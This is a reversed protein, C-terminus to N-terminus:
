VIGREALDATAAGQLRLRMAADVVDEPRAHDGVFADVHRSVVEGREDLLLAGGQQLRDGHRRGPRLGRGIARAETFLSRPGFTAWTSRLLRAAAFVALSPDTVLTVHREDLGHREAFGRLHEPAGNGVLVIRVGLDSLEPQRPVLATVLAECGVCGFHRLFVLLTPGPLVVSRLARARGGRDIVELEGARALFAAEGM